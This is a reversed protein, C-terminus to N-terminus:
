TQKTKKFLLYANYYRKKNPLLNRSSDIRPTWSPYNPYTSVLFKVFSVFETDSLKLRYEKLFLERIQGDHENTSLLGELLYTGFPYKSYPQDALGSDKMRLVATTAASIADIGEQSSRLRVVTNDVDSATALASFFRQHQCMSRPRSAFEKALKTLVPVIKIGVDEMYSGLTFMGYEDMLAVHYNWEKTREDILQEPTMRKLESSTKHRYGKEVCRVDETNPAVDSPSLEQAALPVLIMLSVSVSILAQQIMSM